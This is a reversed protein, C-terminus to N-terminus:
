VPLGDSEALEIAKPTPWNGIRGVEDANSALWEAEVTLNGSHRLMRERVRVAGDNICDHCLDGVHSQLDCAYTPRGREGIFRDFNVILAAIERAISFMGVAVPGYLEMRGCCVCHFGGHKRNKYEAVILVEESKRAAKRKQNRQKESMM